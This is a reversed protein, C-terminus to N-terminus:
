IAIEWHGAESFLAIREFIIDLYMIAQKEIEFM